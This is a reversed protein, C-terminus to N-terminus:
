RRDFARRIRRAVEDFPRLEDWYWRVVQKGLDRLAEERRKEALVVDRIDEGPRM